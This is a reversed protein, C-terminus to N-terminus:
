KKNEVPDNTNKRTKTPDNKKKNRIKTKNQFQKYKMDQIYANDLM